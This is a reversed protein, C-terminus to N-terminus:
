LLGSWTGSTRQISRQGLQPSLADRVRLLCGRLTAASCETGLLLDLEPDRGECARLADLVVRPVPVHGPLTEVRPLMRDILARDHTRLEERKSVDLLLSTFNSLDQWVRLLHDDRRADRPAGLVTRIRSQFLRFMYLDHVRMARAAPSGLVRAITNGSARLRTALSDEDPLSNGVVTRHLDVYARRIALAIATEEATSDPSRPLGEQDAVLRDLERLCRRCMQLTSDCAAVRQWEPGGTRALQAQQGGLEMRGLTATDSIPNHTISSTGGYWAVLDDLFARVDSALTRVTTELATASAQASLVHYV